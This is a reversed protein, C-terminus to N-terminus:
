GRAILRLLSAIAAALFGGAAGGAFSWWFMPSLSRFLNRRVSLPQEEAEYRRGKDLVSLCYNGGEAYRVDIYGEEDLTKVARAIEEKNVGLAAPYLSLFDDDSFIEYGNEKCEDNLYLLMAAKKAETMTRKERM